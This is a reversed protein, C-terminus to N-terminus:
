GKPRLDVALRQPDGKWALVFALVKWMRVPVKKKGAECQSIFPRSCGLSRALDDQTLGRDKRLFVWLKV